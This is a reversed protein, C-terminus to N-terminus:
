NEEQIIDKQNMREKVIKSQFNDNNKSIKDFFRTAQREKKKMIRDIRANNNMEGKCLERIILMNVNVEQGKQTKVKNMPLLPLEQKVKELSRRLSRKMGKSITDPMIPDYSAIGIQSQSQSRSINLINTRKTPSMNTDELNNWILSKRGSSHITSDNQSPYLVTTNNTKPFRSNELSYSNTSPHFSYECKKSEIRIIEPLLALISSSRLENAKQPLAKGFSSLDLSKDNNIDSTSNKIECETLAEEKPILALNDNKEMRPPINEQSLQMKLGFDEISHHKKYSEKLSSSNIFVTNGNTIKVSQSGPFLMKPFFLTSQRKLKKPSIKKKILNANLELEIDHTLKNMQDSIKNYKETINLIRIDKHMKGLEINQLNIMIEGFKGADAQEIFHKEVYGDFRFLDIETIDPSKNLKRECNLTQQASERIKKEDWFIKLARVEEGHSLEKKLSSKRQLSKSLKPSQSNKKPSKHEHIKEFLAKDVYDRGLLRQNIEQEIQAEKEMQQEVTDITSKSDSIEEIDNQLKDKEHNRIWIKKQLNIFETYNKAIKASIQIKDPKSIKAVVIKNSKLEPLNSNSIRFPKKDNRMETRYEHTAICPLFQFKPLHYNKYQPTVNDNYKSDEDDNLM